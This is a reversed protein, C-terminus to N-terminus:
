TPSPMELSLVSPVRQPSHLRLLALGIGALGLMLGPTKNDHPLGCHWQDERGQQLVWASQRLASQRWREEQLVQGATYLIDINGMAGHCLCHSRVFAIERETTELGVRIEERVQADDLHRLGLVRGLAIGAAGNCWAAAIHSPAKAPDDSMTRLDLWAGREPLFLSREFVLGQLAAERYRAEGTAAALELLVWVIGAAGHSFGALPKNPSASVSWGLGGRAPVAAKLLREGCLRALELARAEGTLRHLGLLVRACGAAGSLVDVNPDEIIDKELSPLGALVEDMMAQDGFLTALHSMVYMHSGRGLYVGVGPYDLVTPAKWNRRATELSARALEAFDQRGTLASLYGLFLAVGGVGEYVSTRIPSLAWRWAELDELSVGIWTANDQGLIATSRLLEGIGVAAELLEERPPEPPLERPKAAPLLPQSAGDPEQVMAVMAQRLLSLQDACGAEGMHALRELVSTLSPEPFFDPIREGTSSWLDRSGPRTLFMPIDGARLDAQEYPILQSLMPKVEAEAWLLDLLRDVDLGDRLFDPHHSEQQLFGYRFTPRVIHRVEVEAFARLREELEARHRVLLRYTEQFGRALEEVFDAANAAQGNLRPLNSAGQMPVLGRVLRMTDKQSDEALLAPRPLMQGAQGGLGSLDVSKGAFSTQFPLLGILLVSQDLLAVARQYADEGQELPPAHYFLSELDVLVPFEGAAILNELHVDVARLLYLLALYSGQRLYFRQLGERSDCEAVDVHEVWGYSARDLVKMLRHPTSLGQTNLWELLQQFRVDVALAKPKYIVKLGSSFRAHVVSRGGRHTDSVGTGLESLTGVEQGGLFLHGLEPRDAAVRELLELHVALWSEMTTALSRALVPYEQLLTLMREPDEFSRSFNEFREQPTAGHLTGLLRATNLELVLVRTARRSLSQQLTFLLAREAEPGLLPPSSAHRAQLQAVGARLRAAAIRLMPLTFHDFNPKTAPLQARPSPALTPLPEDRHQREALAELFSLWSFDARREDLRVEEEGLLSLLQEESLSANALRQAFAAQHSRMSGRWAKLRHEARALAQPETLPEGSVREHLFAAKKWQERNIM